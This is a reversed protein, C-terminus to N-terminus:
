FHWVLRTFAFDRHKFRGIVDDGAGLFVAGSADLSVNDRVNWTFLGRLFGSADGPNVVAFARARYRERGFEREISGVLSVDTAAVGSDEGSWRRNILISGFVRFGGTSRDFGAGADFARGSVVGPRSVGAFSKETFAAVEGRLAWEGVVTEFDGSVMTFRLHREVLSGVVAPAPTAVAPEFLVVGFGDFGHYVGTAVDVRGITALVRGGGSVNSWRTSPEVHTLRSAVTLTAPLVADNVLNFPSSAEDLEDFTGRRFGPVAVGEVTLNESLAVRARVFPVPLRAASRGDFLFRAADLPNIVDSPQLEDLRGWTLRGYGARVDGREGAVELWADRVGIVADTVSGNRDAVLGQALAEVGFRLGGPAGPDGDIQLMLQPRWEAADRRPLVDFLLALHGDVSVPSLVPTAPTVQAAARGAGAAAIVVALTWPIM